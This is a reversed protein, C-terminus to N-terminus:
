RAPAWRSRAPVVRVHVHGLDGVREAEVDAAGPTPMSVAASTAWTATHSCSSPTRTSAVTPIESGTQAAAGASAVTRACASAARGPVMLTTAKTGTRCPSAASALRSQVTVSALTWASLSPATGPM